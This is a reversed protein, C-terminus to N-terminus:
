QRDHIYTHIYTHIHTHTYTHMYTHIYTHIYIHIYTHINHIPIIVIIARSREYRSDFGEGHLFRRTWTRKPYSLSLEFDSYLDGTLQLSQIYDLLDAATTHTSSFRQILRRVGTGTSTGGSSSSATSTSTSTGEGSLSDIFKYKFAINITSSSSAALEALQQTKNSLEMRRESLRKDFDNKKQILVQKRRDEEVSREYELDQQKKLKRARELAETIPNVPVAIHPFQPYSPAGTPIYAPTYNPPLRRPPNPNKPMNGRRSPDAEKTMTSENQVTLRSSLNFTPMVLEKKPRVSETASDTDADVDYISPSLSFAPAPQPKASKKKRKEEKKEEEPAEERPLISDSLNRMVQRKEVQDSFFKWLCPLWVTAGFYLLTLCLVCTLVAWQMEEKTDPEGMVNGVYEDVGVRPHPRFQAM